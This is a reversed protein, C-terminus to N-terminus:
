SFKIILLLSLWLRSLYGTRNIIEALVVMPMKVEKTNVNAWDEVKLLRKPTRPVGFGVEIDELYKPEPIDLKINELQKRTIRHSTNLRKIKISMVKRLIGEM